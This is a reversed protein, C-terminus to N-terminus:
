GDLVTIHIWEVIGGFSGGVNHEIAQLLCARLEAPLEMHAANEDVYCFFQGLIKNGMLLPMEGTRPHHGLPGGTPADRLWKGTASQETVQLHWLESTTLRHTDM